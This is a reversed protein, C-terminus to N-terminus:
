KSRVPLALPKINLTIGSGNTQTINDNWSAGGTVDPNNYSIYLTISGDAGIIASQVISSTFFLCFLITYSLFRLIRTIM